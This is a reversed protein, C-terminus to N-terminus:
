KTQHMQHCKGKHTIRIEREHGIEDFMDVKRISEDHITRIQSLYAQLVHM